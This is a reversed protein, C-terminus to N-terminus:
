LARVPRRKGRTVVKIKAHQSSVSYDPVVVDNGVVRGVTTVDPRLQHIRGREPGDLVALWALVPSPRQSILMTASDSSAAAGAIPPGWAPQNPRPTPQDARVPPAHLPVFPSINAHVTPQEDPVSSNSHPAEQSGMKITKQDNMIEELNRGGYSRSVIPPHISRYGQTASSGSSLALKFEIAQFWSPAPPPRRPAHDHRMRIILFVVPM